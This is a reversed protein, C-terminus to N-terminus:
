GSPCFQHQSMCDTSQLHYFIARVADKMAVSDGLNNSRIAKGYYKTLKKINKDSPRGKGKMRVQKDRGDM